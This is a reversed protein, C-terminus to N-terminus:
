KQTDPGNRRADAFVFHLTPRWDEATIGAPRVAPPLDALLGLAPSETSGGQSFPTRQHAM